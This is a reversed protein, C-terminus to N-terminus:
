EGGLREIEDRLVRLAWADRQAWSQFGAGNLTELAPENFDFDHRESLM